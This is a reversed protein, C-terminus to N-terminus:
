YPFFGNLSASLSEQMPYIGKVAVIFRPYICKLCSVKEDVHKVIDHTAQTLKSALDPGLETEVDAINIDERWRIGMREIAPRLNKVDIETRFDILQTLIEFRSEEEMMLDSYVQAHKSSLLFDLTGVDFSTRGFKTAPTAKLLLWIDQCDRVPDVVDKQYSKQIRWITYITFIARNAAEVNRRIQEKKEHRNQLLFAFGAGFFAASLTVLAQLWHPAVASSISVFLGVLVGVSFAVAVSAILKDSSNPFVTM